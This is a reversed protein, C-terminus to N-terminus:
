NKVDMEEMTCTKTGGAAGTRDYQCCGHLKQYAEDPAKYAANDYGALAVAKQIADLSTKAPNFTVTLIHTDMDWDAKIAGEMKAAKQITKQCMGCNGLVKFTATQETAMSQVEKKVMGNTQSTASFSVLLFFAFAPFLFKINKM